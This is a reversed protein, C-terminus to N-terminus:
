RTRRTSCWPTSSSGAAPRSTSCGRRAGPAAAPHRRTFRAKGDPTNFVGDAFLRPGGWQFQDGQARLREIGAYLPVARAIEDRIQQSSAFRVKDARDPGCARRSRASCRGSRSRPGSGGGRRGRALLHHPARDLDRHRRGAVRLAHHGPVPGRHGRPRAADDLDRVIDQHIRTGVRRWARRSRPPTPCRRWSTAAWWGSPTSRAATPRTWWRRRPSGRSPRAAPLGLGAAFRTSHPEELGPACGVEAGGQVGSHGRIPM